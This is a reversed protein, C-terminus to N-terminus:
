QLVLLKHIHKDAIQLTAFLFIFDTEFWNRVTTSRVAPQVPKVLCVFYQISKQLSLHDM